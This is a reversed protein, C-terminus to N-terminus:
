TLTVSSFDEVAYIYQSILNHIEMELKFFEVGLIMEKRSRKINKIIGLVEHDGDVGPFKCNMLIEDDIQVPPLPEKKSNLMHCRCGNKSVDIIAGHNTKDKIKLSAPFLSEARKQSRLDYHEIIKPYQLFLLKVPTTIIQILKTQFGYVTGRYLYRVIIDVGPVLKHKVNTYQAPIKIILYEDLEMGILVSHLPFAVDTMKLQITTGLELFIRKGYEFYDIDIGKMSTM